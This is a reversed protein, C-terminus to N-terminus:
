ITASVRWTVGFCHPRRSSGGIAWHMLAPIYAAGLHVRRPDISAMCQLASPDYNIVEDRLHCCSRSSFSTAYTDSLQHQSSWSSFRIKSSSTLRPIDNAEAFAELPPGVIMSTLVPWSLGCPHLRCCKASAGSRRVTKPQRCTEHSVLM